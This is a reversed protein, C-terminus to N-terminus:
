LARLDVKECKGSEFYCIYTSCNRIDHILKCLNSTHLKQLLEFFWKVYMVNGFQYKSQLRCLSQGSTGPGKQKEHDKGNFLVTNLLFFLTLKRLAKKYNKKWLIKNEFSNRAHLPKLNNVLILFPDLSAKPM